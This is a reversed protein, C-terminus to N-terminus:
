RYKLVRCHFQCFVIKCLHLTVTYNSAVVECSCVPFEKHRRTDEQQQKRWNERESRSDEDWKEAQQELLDKMQEFLRLSTPDMVTSGSLTSEGGEDSIGSQETGPSATRHQKKGHKKSM